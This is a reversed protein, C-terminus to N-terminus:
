CYFNSKPILVDNVRFRMSKVNNNVNEMAQMNWLLYPDYEKKISANADSVWADFNQLVKLLLSFM